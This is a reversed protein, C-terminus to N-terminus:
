EEYPYETELTYPNHLFQSPHHPVSDVYPNTDLNFFPTLSQTQSDFGNNQNFTSRKRSYLRYSSINWFITYNQISLTLITCWQHHVSHSMLIATTMPMPVPPRQNSIIASTWTNTTLLILVHKQANKCRVTFENNFIQPDLRTEEKGIKQSGPLFIDLDINTSNM